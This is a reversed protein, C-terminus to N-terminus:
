TVREYLVAQIGKFVEYDVIPVEAIERLRADGRVLDRWAYTRDRVLGTWDAQWGGDNRILPRVFLLRQGPDLSRVLRDELVVPDARGLREMADRWDMVRPDEVPGLTTAYRLGPPLYYHLVAIQEPHTTVVLDGPQVHNEVLAAVERVNSKSDGARYTVWFVVVLALAVAGLRGARALGASGLLLLPGLVIALYRNAWAPSVQSAIWAAVVAAVTLALIAVAADRQRVNRTRLLGALGAGAALLLAVASGNGNLLATPGGLLGGPSPPRSWPAGTHAAQFLLTPLWPLFAIAAAGFALAGDVLLARRDDAERAHVLLAVLAGFAFFLSWTHTYLLLVLLVAFAVVYRRRRLVFGHVFAGTALLSLLAVLTYM